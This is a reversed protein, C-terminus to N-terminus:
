SESRPLLRLWPCRCNSAIARAASSRVAFRAQRPFRGLAEKIAGAIEGPVNASTIAARLRAAAGDHGQRHSELERAIAADAFLQKSAQATVVFGDPVALALRSRIEGLRAMKEGVVDALETGLEDMPLTLPVSAGTGRPMVSAGIAGLVRELALSLAPYRNGSMEDLDQVVAKVSEGLDSALSHLYQMDFLYEGGLKEDADAILRLVRNNM